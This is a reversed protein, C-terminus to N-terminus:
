SNYTFKNLKYKAEEVSQILIMAKNTYFTILPRLGMNFDVTTSKIFNIIRHAAKTSLFPKREFDSVITKDINKSLIQLLRGNEKKGQEFARVFNQPVIRSSYVSNYLNSLLDNAAKRYNNLTERSVFELAQSNEDIYNNLLLILDFDLTQIDMILHQVSSYNALMPDNVDNVFSRLVDLHFNTDTTVIEKTLLFNETELKLYNMIGEYTNNLHYANGWRKNQKTLLLEISEYLKLSKDIDVGMDIPKVAELKKINDTDFEHLKNIGIIYEKAKKDNVVLLNSIGNLVNISDLNDLENAKQTLALLADIKAEHLADSNLIKAIEEAMNFDKTKELRAMPDRMSGSFGIYNEFEGTDKLSEYLYSLYNEPLGTYSVARNIATDKQTLNISQSGKFSRM